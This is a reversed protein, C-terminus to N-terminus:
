KEEHGRGDSLTPIQLRDIIKKPLVSEGLFPGVM